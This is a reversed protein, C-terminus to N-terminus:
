TNQCEGKNEMKQEDKVVNKKKSEYTPHLIYKNKYVFLVHESKNRYVM